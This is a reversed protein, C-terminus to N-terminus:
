GRVKLEELTILARLPSMNAADHCLGILGWRPPMNGTRVSKTTAYSQSEQLGCIFASSRLHERVCRRKDANIQPEYRFGCFGDSDPM